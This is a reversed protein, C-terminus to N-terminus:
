PHDGEAYAVVPIGLWNPGRSRPRSFGSFRTLAKAPLACGYGRKTEILNGGKGFRGCLVYSM